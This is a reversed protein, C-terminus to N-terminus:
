FILELIEQQTATLWPMASLNLQILSRDEINVAAGYMWGPPEEVMDGKEINAIVSFPADADLDM